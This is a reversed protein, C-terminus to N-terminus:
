TNRNKALPHHANVLAKLREQLVHTYIETTSIDAHGLLQQVARLDAGRDLLHSAFAHRLVHPSVREPDLGAELAVDKLDQAFGQRTVHGSASRSPFLWVSNDFRGSVAIFQDLAARATPNLPVLRERGGKGKIAFVRTDGRLVSRPLGVLESVRMGTAYLLELLCRFRLARFLENGSLGECRRASADLLRDVEAISLVKPLARQKKPGQLGSAPDIAVVGEAHLFAYYQRISSLRRARSSPAQGDAALLSLYAQIDSPSAATASLGRESLFAILGDVDRTYAEITNESAGREAALMDLFEALHDGRRHEGEAM